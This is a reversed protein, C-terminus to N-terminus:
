KDVGKFDEDKSAAHRERMVSLLLVILGLGVAIIAIKLPFPIADYAVGFVWYLVYGAGIGLGVLALSAGVKQM